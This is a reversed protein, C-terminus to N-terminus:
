VCFSKEYEMKIDRIMHKLDYRTQYKLINQAKKVDLCWKTGGDSKEPYLQIGSKNSFITCFEKAIELNTVMSGRGIHFIGSIEKKEIGFVLARVVDKVYILDRGGAGTGYIPLAKKENSMKLLIEWFIHSMGYKFNLGCIEGMRYSKIFMNYNKNYFEALIEINLKSLGYLNDPQPMQNEDVLDGMEFHENGFVARSSVNIINKINLEKCAEFVNSGLKINEIYDIQTFLDKKGALHIVADCGGFSQKLSDVSYDSELYIVADVKQLDKRYGRIPAIIEYDSSYDRIFYQGVFGSGGTLGIRM